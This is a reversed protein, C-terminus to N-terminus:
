CTIHAIKVVSSNTPHPAGAAVGVGMGGVDVGVGMGGVDVGVGTGGISTVNSPFSHM